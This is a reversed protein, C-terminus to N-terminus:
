TVDDIKKTSYAVRHFRIKWYAYSLGLSALVIILSIILISIKKKM